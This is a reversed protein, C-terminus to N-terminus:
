IVLIMLMSNKFFKTYNFLLSRKYNETTPLIEQIIRSVTVAIASKGIGTGAELIVFRKKNTLLENLIFEIAVKQQPRIKSFPFHKDILQDMRKLSFLIYLDIM